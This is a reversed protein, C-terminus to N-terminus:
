TPSEDRRHLQCVRWAECRKARFNTCSNTFDDIISQRDPLRDRFRVSAILAAKDETPLHLGFEHGKVGGHKREPPCFGTPVYDDNLRKPDFWEEFTSVWGSHGLPTRYWVGLFSSIKYYGTGRLTDMTAEPDIGVVIPRIDYRHRHEEPVRQHDPLIITTSDNHSRPAKRPLGHEFIGPGTTM